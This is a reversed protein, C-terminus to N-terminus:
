LHQFTPSSWDRVQKSIQHSIGIKAMEDLFTFNRDEYDGPNSSRDEDFNCLSYWFYHWKVGTFRFQSIRIRKSFGTHQIFTMEGIKCFFPQWPLIGWSTPFLDLHIFNVCIGKMQHFLWLCRDLIDRSLQAGTLFSSIVSLLIYQGTLLNASRALFSEFGIAKIQQPNTTLQLYIWLVYFSNLRLVHRNRRCSVFM